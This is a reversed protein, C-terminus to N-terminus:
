PTLWLVEQHMLHILCGKVKMGAYLGQMEQLYQKLQKVGEDGGEGTKFEMVVIEGNSQVVRDMRYLAGDRGVLEREVWVTANAFPWFFAALDERCLTRAVSQLLPAYDGTGATEVANLHGQWLTKLFDYVGQVDGKLDQPLSTFGALLRHVAEGLQVARVNASLPLSSARHRISSLWAWDGQGEPYLLGHTAQPNSSVQATPGAVPVGLRFVPCVSTDGSNEAGLEPIAGSLLTLLQNKHLGKKQPLLMYLEEEARTVAVYLTRLEDLWANMKENQVIENLERSVNRLHKPIKLAKLGQGEPVFYVGKHGECTLTAIPLIVAKAQLGKAKHITMIRVAESSKVNKMVFVEDDAKEFWELLSAIDFTAGDKKNQLLELFYEVVAEEHSASESYHFFQLLKSVIEYVPWFRLAKLPGGFTAEWLGGLERKWSAILPKPANEIWHLPSIGECFRQWFGAFLESTLVQAVCLDDARSILRLMALLTQVLRNRRIDMQRESYVAIGRFALHATFREVEDNKRLLVFIDEPRYRKLLEQILRATWECASLLLAEVKLGEMCEVHVLGGARKEEFRQPITQRVHSFVLGVQKALESTLDSGDHSRSNSLSAAWDKLNNEHFLRAVFDVIVRHSRWNEQLFVDEVGNEVQHALDLPADRFVSQAAGRWRYLLQKEDGVCFFSGGKSLAEEVLPQMARWHLSSTDQFEDILIHFIREGLRFFLDPLPIEAYIRHVFATIDGFFVAREEQKLAALAGKWAEMLDLYSLIDKQARVVAYESLCRRIEQWEMQIEGPMERCSKKLFLAAADEKQFWTKDFANDFRGNIAHEMATETNRNFKLGLASAKQMFAGIKNRIEDKSLCVGVPRALPLGYGQEQAYLDTVVRLIDYQPWWSAKEAEYLYFKLFSSLRQFLETDRGAQLLLRDLARQFFEQQNSCIEYEPSIGLDYGAAYVLQHLFSDITRIQWFDYNAFLEDVLEGARMSLDEPKCSVLHFLEALRESSPVIALEKLFYLVRRKMESAADNTFTIALSNAIRNNPIHSSLLFQLFRMALLYTKGSGASANVRMIHPFRLTVDSPLVPM